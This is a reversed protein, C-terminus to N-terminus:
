FKFDVRFIKTVVKYLILFARFCKIKYLLKCVWIAGGRVGHKKLSNFTLFDYNYFFDFNEKFYNQTWRLHDRINIEKNDYARLAMSIGIHIFATLAITEKLVEESTSNKNKVFENAFKFITDQQTNSIVSGVRVHYHILVEDVSSITSCKRYLSQQFALDEGVKFDPICEEAIISRKILKNWLSGNIFALIDDKPPLLIQQPFNRMEVCLVRGTEIDIRDYACFVIEAETDRACFYLKELFNIEISDDGDLFIIYDGDILGSNLAANRARAPSGLNKELFIARIRDNYKAIFDGIISRTRDTSCDDVIVVNFDQFTQSFLEMLCDEIYNELNYTTIVVTIKPM